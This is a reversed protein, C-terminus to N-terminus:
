PAARRRDDSTVRLAAEDDRGHREVREDRAYPRLEGIAASAEDLVQDLVEVLDDVDSPAPATTPPTMRSPCGNGDSRSPTTTAPMASMAPASGGVATWSPTDIVASCTEIPVTLSMTSAGRSRSPFGPLGIGAPTTDGRRARVRATALPPTPSTSAQAAPGVTRMRAIATRAM